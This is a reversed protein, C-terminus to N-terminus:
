SSRGVLQVTHGHVIYKSYYHTQACLTLACRRISSHQGVRLTCARKMLMKGQKM